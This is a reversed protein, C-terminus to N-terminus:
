QLLKVVTVLLGMAPTRGQCLAWTMVLYADTNQSQASCMITLQRVDPDAFTEMIPRVWPSVDSKWLGQFPSTPDVKVNQECWEWPSVRSPPKLAEQFSKLIEINM